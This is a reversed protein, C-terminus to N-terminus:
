AKWAALLAHNQQRTCKDFVRLQQYKILRQVSQVLSVSFQYLTDNVGEALSAVLCEDHHRVILFIQRFADGVVYVEFSM